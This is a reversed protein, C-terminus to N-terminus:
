NSLWVSGWWQQNAAQWLGHLRTSAVAYQPQQHLNLVPMDRALIQQIQAYIRKREAQDHADRGQDFLKDIEPNSYQSANNFTTGKHIASSVYTRAIGLAPDGLTTYTQLTADFDYDSYVRKLIVPREAGQLEVKVGVAEWFRQLAQAAQQFEPKGTEFLLRIVFRKGDPGPKAGADDLMKAARAPDYPFLKDYDVAPDYAWLRTDFASKPIGGLGFFVKEHLFKRDMAVYLAQRVEPKALEPRTTNLIVIDSGPYSVEQASFQKPQSLVMQVSSLPMYDPVIYDVEGARLALIRSSTDPMTKVILRDLFPEGKDKRWYDDNRVLEVHDGRVWEKFKFPGNGVPNTLVAPNKLIDTGRLLHAPMIAANQECALSFLFPGFPKKLHIVVSDRAPTDISDIFRGAAEFRPGYKSSIELLTFKVDDSTVAQGDHWKANELQFTYTLGDPSVQWSKALSPVIEFGQKFRVLADYVQCAVAVDPVSSTTDPSLSLPDTGLVMIATGGRVPKEEAAHAPAAAMMGSFALAFVSVGAKSLVKSRM